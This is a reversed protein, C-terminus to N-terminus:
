VPIQNKIKVEKGALKQILNMKMKGRKKMKQHSKKKLLLNLLRMSMKKMMRRLRNPRKSIIRFKCKKKMRLM